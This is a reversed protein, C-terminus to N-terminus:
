AQPRDPIPRTGQLHHIAANLETVQQECEEILNRSRTLQVFLAEHGDKEEQIRRLVLDRSGTLVKVAAGVYQDVMM